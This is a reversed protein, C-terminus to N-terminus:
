NRWAYKLTTLLLHYGARLSGVLTGAVKSRGVRRRCSVPVNVVRYGKRAAKVIMEVPWGHTRHELGLERLVDARIARFPGIDTLALGYLLRLLGTVLRNGFEQHSSVAGAERLRHARAGIVLDASGDLLPGLVAPMERPDDSRDGDLFVLVDADQASLAGAMCAAGYGRRPESIVRAGAARAVDATRDTSGNDVVLIEAALPRPVEGVVRGIAAEEDLAPIIVAIKM